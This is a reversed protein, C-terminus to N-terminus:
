HHNSDNLAKLRGHTDMWKLSTIVRIAVVFFWLGVFPGLDILGATGPNQPFTYINFSLGVIGIFCGPWGFIKGLKPHKLMAVGLLIVSAFIFIDWAMDAGLQITDGSKYAMRWAEKTADSADELPIRQFVVRIARQMTAMMTVSAGAIILFLTGVQLSISNRYHKIFYYLGAASACLLPGFSWFVLHAFHTPLSASISVGYAIGGLIGCVFGVRVWHKAFKVHDNM